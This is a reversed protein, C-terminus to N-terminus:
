REDNQFQWRSVILKFSYDEKVGTIRHPLYVGATEQYRDFNLQWGAQSFSEAVGAASLQLNKETAVEPAPIGRAWWTLASVPLPAGTVRQALEAPNDIYVQNDWDLRAHHNDGTIRAAGAGLPGSLDIQYADNQQRWNLSASGGNDPSKFGLKGSLDWSNFKSIQAKHQSWSVPTLMEPQLSCGALVSLILSLTAITNRM